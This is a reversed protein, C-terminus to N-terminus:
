EKKRKQRAFAKYTFGDPLKPYIKGKERRQVEAILANRLTKAGNTIRALSDSGPWNNFIPDYDGTKLYQDIEQKVIQNTKRSM